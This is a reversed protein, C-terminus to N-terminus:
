KSSSKDRDRVIPISDGIDAEQIRTLGSDFELADEGAGGFLGEAPALAALMLRFPEFEPERGLVGM